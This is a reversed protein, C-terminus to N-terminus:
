VRNFAIDDETIVREPLTIVQSIRKEQITLEPEISGKTRTESQEQQANLDKFTDLTKKINDIPTEKKRKPQEALTVPTIIPVKDLYTDNKTLAAEVWHLYPDNKSNKIELYPDNKSISISYIIHSGAGEIFVEILNYESLKQLLSIVYRRDVKFLKVLDKQHMHIPKYYNANLKALLKAWAGTEQLTMNLTFTDFLKKINRKM